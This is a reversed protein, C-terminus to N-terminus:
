LGLDAEYKLSYLLRFQGWGQQILLHEKMKENVVDDKIVDAVIPGPIWTM